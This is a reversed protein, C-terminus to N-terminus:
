QTNFPVFNSVNSWGGAALIVTAALRSSTPRKALSSLVGKMQRTLSQVHSSSFWSSLFTLAAERTLQLHPCGLVAKMEEASLNLYVETKILHEVNKAIFILLDESLKFFEEEGSFMRSTKLLELMNFKSCSARMLSAVRRQLAPIKLKISARIIDKINDEQDVDLEVTEAGEYATKILAKTTRETYPLLLTGAQPHAAESSNRSDMFNMLNESMSMLVLAHVRFSRHTEQCVVTM